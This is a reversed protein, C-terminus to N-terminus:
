TLWNEIKLESIREFHQVNNTVLICKNVIATAAIMIDFDEILNGEKRLAAKLKGFQKEIDENVPFFHIEKSIRKISHINKEIYNSRYAGYYLETRSIVSAALAQPGHSTINEVISPKSKTWYILINTDLLYKIM